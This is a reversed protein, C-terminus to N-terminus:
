HSLNCQAKANLDGDATQLTIVDFDAKYDHYQGQIDLTKIVLPEIFHPKYSLTGEGGHIVFSADALHPWTKIHGNLTISLPINIGQITNIDDFGFRQLAQIPIHKLLQAPNVNRVEIQSHISNDALTYALTINVIEDDASHIGLHAQVGLKNREVIITTDTLTGEGWGRPDNIVIHAQELSLRKLDKSPDVPKVVRAMIDQFSSQSSATMEHAHHDINIVPKKLVLSSPVLEGQLLSRLRFTAALQPIVITFEKLAKHHVHVNDAYIEIPKRWGQWAM